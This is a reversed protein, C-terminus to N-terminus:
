APWCAWRDAGDATACLVDVVAMRLPAIDGRRAAAAAAQVGADAAAATLAKGGRGCGFPSWEPDTLQTSDPSLCCVAQWPAAAELDCTSVRQAPPVPRWGEAAVGGGAPPLCLWGGGNMPADVLLRQLPKIDCEYLERDRWVLGQLPASSATPPEPAEPAQM